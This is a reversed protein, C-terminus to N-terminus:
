QRTLAVAYGCRPTTYTGTVAADTWAADLHTEYGKAGSGGGPRSRAAQMRGDGTATGTLIWTGEDPTFIVHGDALLAVGRSTPCAAPNSKATLTGIWRRDPTQRESCAAVALM